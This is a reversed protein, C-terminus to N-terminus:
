LWSLIQQCNSKANLSKEVFAKRAELQDNSIGKKLYFEVKQIYEEPTNVRECFPEFGTKKLMSDNALITGSTRLARILKLKVGTDQESYFIHVRAEAVLKGMVAEPPNAILEIGLKTCHDILHSSPSKGAVKLTNRLTKSNFVRDILWLIGQENEPVSLNGQFLCYSKTETDFSNKDSACAELLHTSRCYQSFYDVDSDKIALIHDAHKLQPEFAMLKKAESTYFRKKFGTSQLALGRYYEHEINHTRVIKIRHKLREHSLLYTTHLGEFLIPNEDKELQSLLKESIRTKVIFPLRNFADLVSKKRRYYIVKAAYKELEPAEGRGYEFCHLTIEVGLAHLAKLRYFVDIAGGYDAPYPVDFSVIHM